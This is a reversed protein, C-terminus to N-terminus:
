LYIEATRDIAEFRESLDRETKEGLRFIEEDIGLERYMTKLDTM